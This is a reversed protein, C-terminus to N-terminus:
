LKANEERIDGRVKWSAPLWYEAIERPLHTFSQSNIGGDTPLIVGSLHAGGRGSLLLAPGAMDPPTGQRGAPQSRDYINSDGYSTM